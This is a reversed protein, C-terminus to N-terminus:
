RASELEMARESVQQRKGVDRLITYDLRGSFRNTSRRSVREIGSCYKSVRSVDCDHRQLVRVLWKPVTENFKVEMVCLALPLVASGRLRSLPTLDARQARLDTDFTIRLRRDYAGELALRRYRVVVKPSLQFRDRFYRVRKLVSRDEVSLEAPLFKDFPLSTDVVKKIDAYSLFVRVKEVINDTKSKLELSCTDGELQAYRRVRLKIRDREGNIKEQYFQLGDSDFYLSSVHYGEGNKATYKDMVCFPNMSKLIADRKFVPVIYKMEFRNMQM